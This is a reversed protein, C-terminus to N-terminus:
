RIRPIKSVDVRLGEQLELIRCYRYWCGVVVNVPQNCGAILFRAIYYVLAQISYHWFRAGLRLAITLYQAPNMHCDDLSKM